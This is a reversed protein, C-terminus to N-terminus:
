LLQLIDYNMLLLNTDVRMTRTNNTSKTTPIKEDNEGNTLICTEKGLRKLSLRKSSPVPPAASSSASNNFHYKNTKFASYAILDLIM